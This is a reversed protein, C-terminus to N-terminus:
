GRAFEAVIDGDKSIFAKVIKLSRYNWGRQRCVNYLADLMETLVKNFQSNKKMAMMLYGSKAALYDNM